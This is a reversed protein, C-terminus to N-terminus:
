LNTAGAQFSVSTVSAAELPQVAFFSTGSVTLGDAPSIIIFDPPGPPASVLPLHLIDGGGQSPTAQAHVGLQVPSFSSMLLSIILVFGTGRVRAHRNMKKIGKM